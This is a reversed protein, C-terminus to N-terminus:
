NNLIRQFFDFTKSVKESYTIGVLQNKVDSLFAVEGAKFFCVVCGFNRGSFVNMSWIRFRKEM